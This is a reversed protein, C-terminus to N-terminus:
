QSALLEQERLDALFRAVDARAVDLEIEYTDVLLKALEVETAGDALARWLLTGSSNAVLYASSLRQLAIVEGEVELWQLGDACLRLKTM